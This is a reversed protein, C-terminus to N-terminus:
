LGPTACRDPWRRHPASHRLCLHLDGHGACRCDGTEPHGAAGAIRRVADIRDACVAGLWAAPLHRHRSHPDLVTCACGARGGHTRSFPRGHREGPTHHSRITRHPAGGHLQPLALRRVLIALSRRCTAPITQITSALGHMLAPMADSCATDSLVALADASRRHTAHTVTEPELPAVPLITARRVSATRRAVARAAVM